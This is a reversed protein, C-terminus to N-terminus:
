EEDDDGDDSGFGGNVCHSALTRLLHRYDGDMAEDGGAKIEAPTWGEECACRDFKGLLAWANGNHGVLKCNVKEPM